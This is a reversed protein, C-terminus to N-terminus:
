KGGRAKAITARDHAAFANMADARAETEDIGHTRMVPLREGRQWDFWQYGNRRFYGYGGSAVLRLRGPTHASM